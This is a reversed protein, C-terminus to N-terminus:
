PKPYKAKVEQIKAKWADIGEHFIMDFQDAYSPYEKERLRQYEQDEYETQLRTIEAAIEEDTPCEQEQDLWTIEGGVISWEAGPRLSRLADGKTIM